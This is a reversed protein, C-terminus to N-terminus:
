NEGTVTASVPVQVTPRVPDNSRLFVRKEIFGLRSPTTLKVELSVSAGPKVVSDEILAATCGCSTTPKELVLDENGVNTIQFTKTLTKRQLVCGFDFSEPEVAIRPGQVETKKDHKPQEKTAYVSPVLLALLLTLVSQKM